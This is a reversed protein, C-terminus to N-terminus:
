LRIEFSYHDPTTATMYVSFVLFFDFIYMSRTAIIHREEHQQHERLLM